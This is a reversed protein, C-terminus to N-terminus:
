LKEGDAREALRLVTEKILQLQSPNSLRHDGDKILTMSVDPGRLAEFTKLAHSPPVDHDKSGQLIRVPFPLELGTPFLLHDQGDALLEATITYPEGYDSPRLYVGTEELELKDRDTFQDWMLDKTMDTAPAILVLGRVRKFANRDQERLRRILLLALWGGMSSGVIIRRGKTHALFMHTAQELWLSITGDIFAGASEGHGSYDFRLARRRTSAAVEALAEAKSGLMTSKYGGLWFFGTLGLEDDGGDHRYALHTDTLHNDFATRAL